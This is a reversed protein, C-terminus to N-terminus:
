AAAALATFTVTSLYDDLALAFLDVEVLTDLGYAVVDIDALAINGDFSIDFDGCGCDGTLDLNAGLLDPSPTTVDPSSDTASPSPSSSLSGIDLSYAQATSTSVASSTTGVPTNVYTLRTESFSSWFTHDVTGYLDAYASTSAYAGGDQSYAAATVSTMVLGETSGPGSSIQVSADALTLTNQGVATADGGALALIGSGDSPSGTGFALNMEYTDSTTASNQSTSQVMTNSINRSTASSIM